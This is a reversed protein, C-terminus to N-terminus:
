LNITGTNGLFMETMKDYGSINIEFQFPPVLRTNFNDFTQIWNQLSKDNKIVFLNCDKDYYRISFATVSLNYFGQQSTIALGVPCFTSNFKSGKDINDQTVDIIM